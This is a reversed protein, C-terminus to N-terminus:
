PPCGALDAFEEDFIVSVTDARRISVKVNQALGGSSCFLVRDGGKIPTSADGLITYEFAAVTTGPGEDAAANIGFGGAVSLLVEFDGADAPANARIITLRDAAEDLRVSIIPALEPQEAFGRALMFVVAAVVVTIAVMLIVGIVPSVAEDTIRGGQMGSALGKQPKLGPNGVGAARSM